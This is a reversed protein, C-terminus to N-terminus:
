RLPLAGRTLLALAWRIYAPDRLAASIMKHTSPHKRPIHIMTKGALQFPYIFVAADSFAIDFHSPLELKLANLFDREYVTLVRLDVAAGKRLLKDRLASLIRRTRRSKTHIQIRRPPSPPHIGLVANLFKKEKLTLILVFRGLTCFQTLDSSEDLAFVDGLNARQKIEFLDVRTGDAAAFLPIGEVLSREFSHEYRLLLRNKLAQANAGKLGAYLGAAASYLDRGADRVKEYLVRNDLDKSACEVAAELILGRRENLAVEEVVIGNNLRYLVSLDGEAPIGVVGQDEGLQFPREILCRQLHFGRNVQEHNVYIPVVSFRCRLAADHVISMRGLNGEVVIRFGDGGKPRYRSPSKGPVFALGLAAFDRPQEVRQGSRQEMFIRRWPESFAALFSLQSSTEIIKLSEIRADANKTPDLLCAAHYFLADDIRGGDADIFIRGPAIKISIFRPSSSAALLVLEILCDAATKFRNTSLKRVAQDIDIRLLDQSANM